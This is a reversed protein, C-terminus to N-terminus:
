FGILCLKGCKVNRTPRGSRKIRNGVSRYLVLYPMFLTARFHLSFFANKTYGYRDPSFLTSCHWMKIKKYSDLDFLMAFFSVTTPGQIKRCRHCKATATSRLFHFLFSDRSSKPLHKNSILMFAVIIRMTAFRVYIICSTREKKPTKIVNQHFHKKTEWKTHV